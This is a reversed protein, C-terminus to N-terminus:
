YLKKATKEKRRREAIYDIRRDDVDDLFDDLGKLKGLTRGSIDGEHTEVFSALNERARRMEDLLSQADKASCRYGDFYSGAERLDGIVRKTAEEPTELKSTILDTILLNIRKKEPRVGDRGAYKGFKELAWATEEPSFNLEM